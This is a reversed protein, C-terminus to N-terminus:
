AGPRLVGIEKLPKMGSLSDWVFIRMSDDKDAETVDIEPMLIQDTNNTNFVQYSVKELENGKYLAMAVTVPQIVGTYNSVNVRGRILGPVLGTATIDEVQDSSIVKEFVPTSIDVTDQARYVKFNDVWGYVPNTDVSNKVEIRVTIPTTLDFGTTLPRNSYTTIGDPDTIYLSYTSSNPGFFAKVKYWENVTYPIVTSVTNSGGNASQINGNIMKAISLFKSGGDKLMIELKKSANIENTRIEMEICTRGTFVNNFTNEIYPDWTHSSDKISKGVYVINNTNSGLSDREVKCTGYNLFLSWNASPLDGVTYDFGETYPLDTDTYTNAMVSVPSFDVVGMCQLLLTVFCVMSMMRKLSRM